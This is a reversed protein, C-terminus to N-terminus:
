RCQRASTKAGGAVLGEAECGWPLSFGKPALAPEQADVERDFEFCPEIPLPIQDFVRITDVTSM